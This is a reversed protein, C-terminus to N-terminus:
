EQDLANDCLECRCSSSIKKCKKRGALIITRKVDWNRQRATNLGPLIQLLATMFKVLEERIFEALGEHRLAVFTWQQIAYKMIVKYNREM